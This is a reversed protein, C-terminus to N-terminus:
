PSLDSHNARKVANVLHDDKKKQLAKLATRTAQYIALGALAALGTWAGEEAPSGPVPPVVVGVADRAVGGAIQAIHEIQEDSIDLTGCGTAALVVFLVGAALLMRNMTLKRQEM